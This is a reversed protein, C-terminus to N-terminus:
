RQKERRARETARMEEELFDLYAQLGDHIIGSDDIEVEEVQTGKELDYTVWLIRVDDNSLIGEAIRRQIRGILHESHTAIFLQHGEKMTEILFDAGQAQYEPHLHIEPEEILIPANEEAFICKGIM